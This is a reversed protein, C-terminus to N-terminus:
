KLIVKQTKGNATKIFIGNAPNAVEMGQLNFYRANSDATEINEVGLPDYTSDGYAIPCLYFYETTGRVSYRVVCTVNYIGAPKVPIEYPNQFEYRGGNPTTGYVKNSENPTNTEFTVGELTVVRNQDDKSVSTVLPYTVEVKETSTDPLGQWFPEGNIADNTAIWGAPIVDGVQYITVMTDSTSAANRLDEIYSPQGEEDIVFAYSGRCYTVTLPFDIYVRDYIKPALESMEAVNAAAPVVSLEYQANGEAFSEDGETSATITTKGGAILTIIGNEDITAANENSSTWSIPLNNPNNLVPFSNEKGIVATADSEGFSLGCESKGALEPTYSIEITHIYRPMFTRLLQMTVTEVGEENSWSWSYSSSEGATGNVDSGNYVVSLTNLAYGTMVLKVSNIKGNPVSLSIQTNVYSSIYLGNETPKTPTTNTFLAFGAGTSQQMKDVSSDMMELDTTFSCEVGAQTFNFSKVCQDAAPIKTDEIRTLGAYDGEGDFVIKTENAWAVSTTLALASLSFLLSKKM